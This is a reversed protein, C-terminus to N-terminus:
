LLTCINHCLEPISYLDKNVHTKSVDTFKQAVTTINVNLWDHKLSDTKVVPFKKPKKILYRYCGEYFKLMFGAFGRIIFGVTQFRDAM